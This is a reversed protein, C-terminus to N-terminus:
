CYPYKDRCILCMSSHNDEDLLKGCCECEREDFHEILGMDEMDEGVLDEIEKRTMIKIEKIIVNTIYM